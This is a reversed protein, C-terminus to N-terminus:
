RRYKNLIDSASNIVATKKSMFEERFNIVNNELLSKPFKTPYYEHLLWSFKDLMENITEKDTTSLQSWLPLYLKTLHLIDKMEQENKLYFTNLRKMMNTNSADYEEDYEIVRQVSVFYQSIKKLHNTIQKVVFEENRAITKKEHHNWYVNIGIALAISIIGLTISIVELM